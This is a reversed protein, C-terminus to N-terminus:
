ASLKLEDVRALVWAPGGQKSPQKARYMALDAAKMLDSSSTAHVGFVSIGIATGVRAELGGPLAVVDVLSAAIRESTAIAADADSGAAMVVLFEDGGLRVVEGAAGTAAKLRAAVIKLLEDGADHGFTDNVQKFGNLDLCLLAFPRGSDTAGVVADKLIAQLAARNALGTLPDRYAITELAREKEKRASIDRIIALAVRDTADGGPTVLMELDLKHGDRGPRHVEFRESRGFVVVNALREIEEASFFAGVNAEQLAKPRAGLLEAAAANSALIRGDPGFTLIGDPIAAAVEALKPDLRQVILRFARRFREGSPHFALFATAYSIVVAIFPAFFSIEVRNGLMQWLPPWSALLAMCLVLSLWGPLLAFLPVFVLPVLALGALEVAPGPEFAGSGSLRTEVGAALAEVFSISGDVPTAVRTAGIGETTGLVVLKGALRASVDQGDLLDALSVVPIDAVRLGFDFYKPQGAEPGLGTLWDIAHLRDAGFAPMARLVADEDLVIGADVVTAVEAIQEIPQYVAHARGSEGEGSPTSYQVVAVRDRGIMSLANALAADEGASGHETFLLSVVTRKAGAEGLAQLGRALADRPIPYRDFRARTREDIAVIAVKGSPEHRHMMQRMDRAVLDTRDFAGSLVLLIVVPSLAIGAILRYLLPFRSM